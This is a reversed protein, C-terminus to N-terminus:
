SCSYLSRYVAFYSDPTHPDDLSAALVATRRLQLLSRGPGTRSARYSKEGPAPVFDDGGDEAQYVAGWLLSPIARKKTGAPILTKLAEKARLGDPLSRNMAQLFDGASFHAGAEPELDVSAIEGCAPLGLSLPSAFDLRPVPNFGRTFLVPIRARVFAMAFVEILALHPLFVASGQKEFSFLIRLTRPDARDGAPAKQQLLTDDHITNYVIKTDGGCNGCPRGCADQCPPTLEGSGSKGYERRLFAASVGSAICEWPLAQEPDREGTIERVLPGHRELLDAWIDKKIHEDWADFRCGRTYAEEVLEGARGDGRSLVGESLAMFPDNYSVRHGRPKLSNRIHRIKERATKEDIQSVGQYPTHPKPVFAGVNISFHMGTRGAIELIFDVIEQEESKQEPGGRGEGVPLGVM